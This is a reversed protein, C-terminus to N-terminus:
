SQSTQDGQQGLSEWSDEEAGQNSLMLEETSLSELLGWNPWVDEDMFTMLAPSTISQNQKSVSVTTVHKGSFDTDCAIVTGSSSTEQLSILVNTNWSPGNPYYFCCISKLLCWVIESFIEILTLSILGTSGLPFLGQIRVPLVSASALDGTSQGGSAFLQHM